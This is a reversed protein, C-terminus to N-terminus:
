PYVQVGGYGNQGSFIFFSTGMEIVGFLGLLIFIIMILFTVFALSYVIRGAVNTKGWGTKLHRIFFYFMALLLTLPILLELGM